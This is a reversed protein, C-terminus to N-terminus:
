SLQLLRLLFLFSDVFLIFISFSLSFFSPPSNPPSHICIYTHSLGESQEDSVIVVNNTLQSYRLLFLKKLIKRQLAETWSQFAQVKTLRLTKSLSM